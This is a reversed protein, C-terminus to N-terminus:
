RLNRIMRNQNPKIRSSTVFYELRSRWLGFRRRWTINNSGHSLLAKGNPLCGNQLM